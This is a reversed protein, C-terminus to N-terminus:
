VPAEETGATALLARVPTPDGDDLADRLLDYVDVVSGDPAALVTSMWRNAYTWGAARLVTVLVTGTAGTMIVRAAAPREVPPLWRLDPEFRRALHPWSGDAIANLHVSLAQVPAEQRTVALVLALGEDETSGRLRDPDLELIRVPQRLGRGAGERGRKGARVAKSRRRTADVSQVDGEILEKVCWQEIEPGSRLILPEAGYSVAADVQPLAALRQALPPHDATAYSDVADHDAAVVASRRTVHPDQLATAFADYFDEPYTGQGAPEALWPEALGDFTAVLVGTLELAQRTAATGAVRAADADAALEAQWVRPQTARLLPASLPALPRFRGQLREALATRANLLWATRGQRVHQEHTLEHAIVAALQGASLIRLMPLGLLLVYSRGGAVKARGLAADPVPIVRVLLSADFGVQEAVGRVLSALDREGAPQVARGPLPAKGSFARSAGIVVWMLPAFTAQWVGWVTGLTVMVLGFFVLPLWAVALMATIFLWDRVASPRYSAAYRRSIPTDM